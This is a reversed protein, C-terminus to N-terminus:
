RTRHTGSADRVVYIRKSRTGRFTKDQWGFSYVCYKGVKPFRRHKHSTAATFAIFNQMMQLLRSYPRCDNPLVKHHHIINHRPESASATSEFYLILIIFLSLSCFAHQQQYRIKLLKLTKVRVMRAHLWKTLTYDNLVYSFQAHRM